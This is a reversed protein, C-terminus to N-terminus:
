VIEKFVETPIATALQDQIWKNVWEICDDSEKFEQELMLEYAWMAADFNDEM